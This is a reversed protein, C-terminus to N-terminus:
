EIKKYGKFPNPILKGVAGFGGAILDVPTVRESLGFQAKVAGWADSNQLVKKYFEMEFPANAYGFREVASYKGSEENFIVSYMHRIPGDKRYGEVGAMYPMGKYTLPNLDLSDRGLTNNMITLIRESNYRFAKYGSYMVLGGGVILGIVNGFAVAAGVKALKAILMTAGAAMSGGSVALLGRPFLGWFRRDTSHKILKGAFYVEENNFKSKQNVILDPKIRTTFGNQNLTHIVRGVEFSGHMDNVYDIMHIVDFPKIKGNGVITLEGDYMNRVEKALLSVGVRWRSPLVRWLNDHINKKIDDVQQKTRAEDGNKVFEVNSQTGKKSFGGDMHAFWPSEGSLAYKSFAVDDWHSTKINNVFIDKRRIHDDFIDDDLNFITSILDDRDDTDISEIDNYEGPEHMHHLHIQNAWGTATASIRNDLINSHSTAVYYQQVRKYQHSDGTVNLKMSSIGSGGRLKSLAVAEIDKVIRGDDTYEDIYSEIIASRRMKRLRGSSTDAFLASLNVGFLVEVVRAAEEDNILYDYFEDVGKVIQVGGFFKAFSSTSKINDIVKKIEVKFRRMADRLINENATLSKLSYSDTYKYYGNKPGVYLTSRVRPLFPFVDDNYTLVTKITDPQFWTVEEIADWVSKNRIYWAFTPSTVLNGAWSTFQFLKNKLGHMLTGGISPTIDVVNLTNYPLYVNDDRPDNFRLGPLGSWISALKAKMQNGSFLTGSERLFDKKGMELYGAKGLHSLGPSQQLLWTVVDGLGRVDKDDRHFIGGGGSIDENLETGYSQCIIEVIPGANVEIITGYFVVPLEVQNNSYGMKVLISTGPKLMMSSMPLNTTGAEPINAAFTDTLKGAINSLKITCVDSAANKDKVVTIENVASYDYFDHFIGWEPADEEIFYIKYTPYIRISEGTQDSITGSWMLRELRRLDNLRKQPLSPDTVLAAYRAMAVHGHQGQEYAIKIKAIRDVTQVVDLMGGKYYTLMSKGHKDIFKKDISDGSKAPSDIGGALLIPHYWTDIFEKYQKPDTDPADKYTTAIKGYADSLASQLISWKLVEQIKILRMFAEEAAVDFLIERELTQSHIDRIKKINATNPERMFDGVYNQLRETVKDLWELDGQDILGDKKALEITNDDKRKELEDKLRKAQISTIISRSVLMDVSKQADTVNERVLDPTILDQTYLYFSPDLAHRPVNLNKLSSVVNIDFDPYCGGIGGEILDTIRSVEDTLTIDNGDAGQAIVLDTPFDEVLARGMVIDMAIHNLQASTVVTAMKLVIEGFQSKLTNLAVNGAAALVVPLTLLVVPLIVTLIPLGLIVATGVAAIGGVTTIGALLKSDLLNDEIIGATFDRYITIINRVNGYYETLASELADNLIYGAYEHYLDGSVEAEVLVLVKKFAVLIEEEIDSPIASSALFQIMSEKLERVTRYTEFVDKNDPFMHRFYTEMDAVDEKMGMKFLSLAKFMNYKDMYDFDTLRLADWLENMDSGEVVSKIRNFDLMRGYHEHDKRIIVSKLIPAIRRLITDKAIKSTNKFAEEKLQEMGRVDIDAQLFGLNINYVNPNSPVSSVEATSLLMKKIGLTEFIGGAEEITFMTDLDIFKAPTSLQVQKSLHSVKSMAYMIDHIKDDGIVTLSVNIGWDSRGLHQFTPFKWGIVPMPAVKNNMTFSVGTIVSKEDNITLRKEDRDLYNGYLLRLAQKDEDTLTENINGLYIETLRFIARRVKIIRDVDERTLEFPSTVKDFSAEDMGVLAAGLLLEFKGILDAGKSIEAAKTPQFHKELMGTGKLLSPISDVSKLKGAGSALWDLAGTVLQADKEDLKFEKIVAPINARYGNIIGTLRQVADVDMHTMKQYKKYFDTHKFSLLVMDFTGTMLTGSAIKKLDDKTLVLTQLEGALFDKVKKGASELLDWTAELSEDYKKQLAREINKIVPRSMDVDNYSLVMESGPTYKELYVSGGKDNLASQYYNKYLDSNKPDATVKLNGQEKYTSINEIRALESPLVMTSGNIKLKRHYKTNVDAATKLLKMRGGFVRDEFYEMTLAAEYSDPFGPVSRINMDTLVMWMAEDEPGAYQNETAEDKHTAYHARLTRAIFRSQVMTVPTLIFQAVLRRLQDDISEINPFVLSVTINSPATTTAIKPDGKTRLTTFRMFQSTQSFSIQTVPCIGFDLDGIRLVDMLGDDNIEVPLRRDKDFREEDIRTTDRDTESTSLEAVDTEVLHQCYATDELDDGGDVVVSRMNQGDVGKFDLDRANDYGCINHVYKVFDHKSLGKMGVGIHIHQKNAKKIDSSTSIDHYICQLGFVDGYKARVAKCIEEAEHSSYMGKTRIDIARGYTENPLYAHPSVKLFNQQTLIHDKYIWENETIRERGWFLAKVRDRYVVKDNYLGASMATTLPDVNVEGLLGPLNEKGVYSVVSDVTRSGVGNPNHGRGIMTVVVTAQNAERYKKLSPLDLDDAIFKLIYYLKSGSRRIADLEQKLRRRGNKVGINGICRSAM